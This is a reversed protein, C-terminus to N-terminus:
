PEKGQRTLEALMANYAALRDDHGADAHRDARRAEREDDRSWQRLLAVVVALMPAEGAAWAIAGGLHQDALPDPLWPLALYGFFDAGVVTSSNMLIVGFFAHFPMVAFLVGLRALHPLQRPPRDIGIVVWFFLYGTVLFHLKMAQHAWHFPMLAGFLGTFYLAYLSAVFLIAAVVPHALFRSVPSHVLSVLLARPRAPLVRLALTLPGGLVLLVPAAMNLAMHAGMHVSFVGGAYRGVGSSTAALVVACGALWAATRGVPWAGVRRVGHLYAAALLVAGVGFFLDPRWDTLLRLPTPPDDLRYGLIAEQVSGTATALWAPPPLHTLSVSVGLVAALALVEGDTGAARRLFALALLLLAKAALLLGYPSVPDAWALTAAPVVGSVVLTALCVGSLLRHRRLVDPCPRSHRLAVLSGIWVAAAPVHWLMANTTLDHDPGSSAHGTAVPVLSGLVGVAFWLVCTRWALSFRTGVAVVAAAAATLAWGQPEPASLVVADLRTLVRTLPQGTSDAASLAVLATSALAWATASWQAVRVAGFAPATLRGDKRSPAAFLAFALAGVALAACTEAAFRVLTAPLTTPLGPDTDGLPTHVDGAALVTAAVLLAGLVGGAAVVRDVRM